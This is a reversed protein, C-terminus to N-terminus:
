STRHQLLSVDAVDFKDPSELLAQKLEELEAKADVDSVVPDDSEVLVGEM